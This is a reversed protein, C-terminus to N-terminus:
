LTPDTYSLTVSASPDVGSGVILTCAPYFPGSDGIAFTSSDSNSGDPDSITITKTDANMVMKVTQGVSISARSMANGSGASTSTYLMMSGPFTGSVNYFGISPVMNIGSVGDRGILAVTGDATSALASVNAGVVGFGIGNFVANLTVYWTLTGSSVGRVARFSKSTSVSSGITATKRGNSLTVSSLPTNRESWGGLYVEAITATSFM